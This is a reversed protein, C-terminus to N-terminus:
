GKNDIEILYLVAKKTKKLYKTYVHMRRGPQKGLAHLGQFQLDDTQVETRKM